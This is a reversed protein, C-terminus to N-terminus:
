CVVHAEGGLLMTLRTTEEPVLRIELPKFDPKEGGWHTEVREYLRSVFEGTTPDVDLLTELFPDYQLHEPRAITWFRNSETFGGSGVVVRQVAAKGTSAPTRTACLTHGM